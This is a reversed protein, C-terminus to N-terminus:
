QVLLRQELQNVIVRRSEVPSQTYVNQNVDLTHGLQDAVLKGDAGLAKMLTAHTRRMVQFNAWGLGVKDLGPKMKRHWCNDKSLPTMRESPFVWAEDHDTAAMVRWTEIEALLGESLAAQRYSHDTKPTDIKRRYVRQRVDVYTATLRSWTLAFIEGPRMGALIALKAILRERQELAGFCVQVEQITMTRRVPKRAEKPTFLLLAPNLRIHGEAVAMDFIQKLDWRLHDVVSFSLRGQKAKLDVLDQLEDRHFSTVERDSFPKALHVSIRNVNNEATSAKWKRRYYPFYVGEVFEGFKLPANGERKAQKGAVIRAVAERAEGKTMDKVFGVIRSRKKGEEYWLRIWRGRQKRVGGTSHRTRMSM